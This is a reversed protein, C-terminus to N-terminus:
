YIKLLFPRFGLVAQLAAIAEAYQGTLSDAWGVEFLYWRPCCPNLRMAQEMM